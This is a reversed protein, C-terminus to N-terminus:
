CLIDKIKAPKFLVAELSCNIFEWGNDSRNYSTSHTHGHLNYKIKNYKCLDIIKDIRDNIPTQWVKKDDEIRYRHELTTGPYHSLLCENGDINLQLTSVLPDEDLSTYVLGNEIKVNGRIVQDFQHYTNPGKKDHNGLILIKKGNLRPIIEQHGKWAVDGLHIVIDDKGVTKNWNKIIWETHAKNLSEEDGKVYLGMGDAHMSKLRCPEFKLVGDHNFHTDSIIFTKNDISLLLEKDIRYM